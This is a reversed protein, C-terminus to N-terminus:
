RKVVVWGYDNQIDVSEATDKGIRWNDYVSVNVKVICYGSPVLSNVSGNNNIDFPVYGAALYDRDGNGCFIFDSDKDKEVLDAYSYYHYLEFPYNESSRDRIAVGAVAAIMDDGWDVTYSNIPLQNEDVDINFSLKVAGSRNLWVNDGSQNNGITFKINNIRPEIYCYATDSHPDVPRVNGLCQRDPVTWLEGYKKQYSGKGSKEGGEWQWEWYGYSQAFIEKIAEKEHTYGFRAQYPPQYNITRPAEYYLPQKGANTADQGIEQRSDWFFPNSLSDAPPVISGFPKYDAVYSIGELINEVSINESSIASVSGEPITDDGDFYSTINSFFYLFSDFIGSCSNGELDTNNDELTYSSGPAVRASWAKNRGSPTVVQVVETCHRIVMKTKVQYHDILDLSGGGSLYAVGLIDGAIDPNPDTFRKADYRDQDTIIKMGHSNFGAFTDGSIELLGGMPITSLVGSGMGSALPWGVPLGVSIPMADSLFTPIIYGWGGWYSDSSNSGSAESISSLISGAEGGIGVSSFLSGFSSIFDTITDIATGLADTIGNPQPAPIFLIFGPTGGLLNISIGGGGVFAIDPRMTGTIFYAALASGNMGLSFCSPCFETVNPYRFFLSDAESIEFQQYEINVGSGGPAFAGVDFGGTFISLAQSLITNLIGGEDEGLTQVIEKQTEESGVCYYLPARDQYGDSIEDLTEGALLDVPWWQLCNKPNNSDRTLCYGHWGNYVRGDAIYKCSLSDRRPYLRCERAIFEDDATQLTPKIDINDFLSSGSIDCSRNGDLDDCISDNDVDLWNTLRLSLSNTNATTNFFLFVNQWPLNADVTLFDWVQWGYNINSSDQSLFRCNNSQTACETGIIIANGEKTYEKIMIQARAKKDSANPQLDLTNIWGSLIYKTSRNVDITESEASYISNLRLYSAGELRYRGDTEVKFKYNEWGKGDISDVLMWGLPNGQDSYVSGFDGNGVSTAGGEQSMRFFPYYGDVIKGNGFDKGVVSYGSKYSNRSDYMLTELSSNDVVINACEGKENMEDCLGLGLCQDNNSNFELGSSGSAGSKRYSNCYLWSACERDPQVKLIMSSDKIRVQDTFVPSQAPQGAAKRQNWYTQDADITLHDINRGGDKEFYAWSNDGAPYLQFFSTDAGYNVASRDNFLICGKNYDVLGNCSTRDVEQALAYYVGTETLRVMEGLNADTANVSLTFSFNARDKSPLFFRASGYYDGAQYAINAVDIAEYFDYSANGDPGDKTYLQKNLSADPSVVISDNNVTIDAPNNSYNLFNFQMGLFIGMPSSITYLTNTKLTVTQSYSCPGSVGNRTCNYVSWGDPTDYKDIIGDSNTDERRTLDPNVIENKYIAALPDIYEGCGSQAAPCAGAWGEYASDIELSQSILDDILYEFSSYNVGAATVPYGAPASNLVLKFHDYYAQYPNYWGRPQSVGITQLNSVDCIESTGSKFWTNSASDYQCIKNRPDKFYSTNRLNTNLYEECWLENHWCLDRDYRSPDNKIYVTDYGVVEDFATIKPLGYATCGKGDAPCSYKSDNVLYVIADNAVSVESKDSEHYTQSRWDDTNQTDILAECGVAGLRCLKDFSKLNWEKNARDTYASCGLMEGPSERTADTASTGSGYPTEIKNDCSFPTFWSNEILYFNEKVEKLLVNDIYITQTGSFNIELIDEFYADSSGWSVFVPGLEYRQWNDGSIAAEGSGAFYDVSSGASAFRINNVDFANEGKAWFSLIYTKGKAIYVQRSLQGVGANNKLSSGGPNNAEASITGGQWNNANNEFDSFLVNRINNGRNGSYQRCGVYQSPCPRGEGPIAMYICEGYDNWYGSTAQCDSQADDGTPQTMTRRYPHCDDSISVTDSMLRWDSGGAQNYFERCDPNAMIAINNDPNAPDFYYYGSAEQRVCLGFQHLENIIAQNLVDSDIPDNDRLYNLYSNLNTYGAAALLAFLADDDATAANTDVPDACTNNGSANTPYILNTCPADPSLSGSQSKKFQYVKLQYGTTDDGEWTYYNRADNPGDPAPKQCARLESYYERGEGGKAVEDLNTFEDCGAYKASCYKARNNAIFQVYRESTFDTQEQLYSQYGLCEAPCIDASSAIGPVGPDGNVPTYLECGVETKLCAGSYDACEPQRNAFIYDLGAQDVPWQIGADSSSDYCNYYDPAKKLYALQNAPRGSPDYPTYDTPYVTNYVVKELKIDDFYAASAGSYNNGQEIVLRIVSIEEGTKLDIPVYVRKWQGPNDKGYVDTSITSQNTYVQVKFKGEAPNNSYIWGSLIYRGADNPRFGAPIVNKVACFTPNSTSYAGAELKLSYKGNHIIQENLEIGLCNGGSITGDDSWSDPWGDAPDSDVEFGSNFVLNSGEGEKLRIFQSCGADQGLCAQADRDFYIEQTSNSALRGSTLWIAETTLCNINVKQLNFDDFYVTGITGPNTIIKIETKDTNGVEINDVTYEKWDTGINSLKLNVGRSSEKGYIDRYYLLVTVSGEEAGFAKKAQFSLNYKEEAEVKIDPLQSIIETTNSLSFSKFANNTIGDGISCSHGNNANQYGEEWSTADWSTCSSFDANYGALINDGEGCGGSVAARCKYGGAPIICTIDAFSCGEEKVCPSGLIIRNNTSTSSWQPVLWSLDGPVIVTTDATVAQWILEEAGHQWDSSASNFLASYWKCGVSDINCNSYDLSNALYSINGGQRDQFSQCSNYQADCTQANFNWIMKEDTCYGYALCSGNKDEKLCQQEDACYNDSRNVDSSGIDTVSNEPGYGIRRCFVEPAKLVWNPDILGALDKLENNAGSGDFASILDGLTYSNSAYQSIYKAAIEWGVPVIRYKRLIIINRLSFVTQVSKIDDVKPAFQRNKIAEPLDRVLTKNRIMQALLEDIVCDTPGPNARKNEPCQTLQSLINYNGGITFAFNALNAFRSEAGQRGESDPQAEPNFLSSLGALGALNNLDFGSGSSSSGGSFYGKKLNNLLKSTLTNIFTQVIDWVTGTYEPTKGAEVAEKYSEDMAMRIATGPTLIKGTLDELNDWGSNALIKNEADRVKEDVAQGLGSQLILFSSLDNEGPRLATVYEYAFNPNQLASRWNKTMKSFTCRPKRPARPDVGTQILVKVAFDPECLDVGFRDDIEDIYTGIAEDATQKLYAGWSETIFLPQQGKGGSAIWTATDYALQQSFQRWSTKFAGALAEKAADKLKDWAEELAQKRMMTNIYSLVQKRTNASDNKMLNMICIALTDAPTQALPGNMTCQGFAEEMSLGPM